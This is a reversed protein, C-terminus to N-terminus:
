RRGSTTLPKDTFIMNVGWSALKDAQCQQNVTYCNLQYGAASVAQAQAQTLHRYHCHLARCSLRHLQTQWDDPIKEVLLARAVNPQLKQLHRLCDPEFSSFLLKEPAFPGPAMIESVRRCLREADDGPYLKFEINVHMGLRTALALYDRLLPIREDAFAPSFWSGADLRSLEQWDFQRLWGKGNTCRNVKEDHAVVVQEDRTLQVDIEVWTFGLRHAERLGALTNEPALSAIGRHGCVIM